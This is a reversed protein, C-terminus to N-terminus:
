LAVTEGAQIDLSVDELVWEREVGTHIPVERGYRFFVHDYRITFVSPLVLPAADARDFIEPETDIIEFIRESAALGTQVINNVRSLKKVPEYLLFMATIFAIFDGQTRVGSIVSYGGYLLIAAIALSAITENTPGSLSGYYESRKLTRTLRDNEDAVRQEEFEERSFAKVVKQGQMTEQLVSTLGGLQDQGVKSLRRVRKGFRIVPFLGLPFGVAVILTLVPDLAFAAVLLAVVRISDRIVSAVADTLTMRVLLTDNTIRSILNGTQHESYFSSSLRLLKGSIDRRIDKVIDLGVSASLYRQFFCFIGRFLAFVVVGVALPVLWQEEQAGFIKDLVLKILFPLAGDSAGYLTMAALACAFRGRYPRLYVFLRRMGAWTSVDGGSGSVTAGQKVSVDGMGNDTRM